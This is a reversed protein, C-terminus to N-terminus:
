PQGGLRLIELKLEEIETKLARNEYILKDMQREMSREAREMADMERGLDHYADQWDNSM